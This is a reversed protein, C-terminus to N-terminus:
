GAVQREKLDDFCFGRTFGIPTRLTETYPLIFPTGLVAFAASTSSHLCGRFPCFSSLLETLTRLSDHPLPPFPYNLALLM